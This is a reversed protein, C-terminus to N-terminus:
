IILIEREAGDTTVGYERSYFRKDLSTIGHPGTYMAGCEDLSHETGAYVDVTYKQAKQL